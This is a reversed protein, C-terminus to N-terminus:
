LTSATMPLKNFSIFTTIKAFWCEILNGPLIYDLSQTLLPLYLKNTGYKCSTDLIEIRLRVAVASCFQSDVFCMGAKDRISDCVYVLPVSNYPAQFPIVM